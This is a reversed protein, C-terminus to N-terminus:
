RTARLSADLITMLQAVRSKGTPAVPYRDLVDIL